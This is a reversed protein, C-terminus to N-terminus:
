HPANGPGEELSAEIKVATKIIEQAKGIDKVGYYFVTWKSDTYSGTSNDFYWRNIPNDKRSRWFLCGEDAKIREWLVEGLGEGRSSPHVVFKCLYAADIGPKKLLIAAARGTETIYLAHIEKRLVSDFYTGKLSRGFAAEILAKLKGENVGDLSKFVNVKEGRRIITGAGSHTFLEKPLDSAKTISVSSNKPLALLLDRIEVLKLRTGHKMWPEAMLRPYDELSIVSMVKGDGDLLGGTGNLYVTKLPQIAKALASAAVDANINLAQGTRTHGFSTLVPMQKARIARVIPDVHIKSVEGVLGYVKPDLPTAEFVGTLIPRSRTGMSELYEVLKANEEAFVELAVSLVEPSTVRLGNEYKPEEGLAELRKNLQPGGGHVVIPHLGVQQLFTLADGLEELNESVVAGGVKIIAFQQQSVSSFLKLYQAVDPTSGPLLELFRV